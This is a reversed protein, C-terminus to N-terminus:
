RLEEFVLGRNGKSLLRISRADSLREGLGLGLGVEDDRREVCVDPEAIMQRSVFRGRVFCLTNPDASHMAYIWTGILMHIVIVIGVLVRVSVFNMRMLHVLIHQVRSRRLHVSVLIHQVRSRRLHVSVRRRRLHVSVLRHKAIVIGVLVLVRAFSMRM